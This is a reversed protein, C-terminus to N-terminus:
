LWCPLVPDPSITAHSFPIFTRIGPDLGLTAKAGAPAALLLDKLNRAFVQIAEEEAKDRLIGMLDLELHLALKVKWAFRAVDMLWKDAPRGCDAIGYTDAVMKVTPLVQSVDDADVTLDVSLIGENRGRFLALARHSPIKSWKESYDFYDSFKAGKEAMGDILKSQVVGREEVHRRLRGVLTANEAFREMLIQRAGDLAAKTDAVGKGDDLFNTAETEPKKMPDNLLLDALPELGAERAIQAKTRRKKKFPLYIDELQSKTDAAQIGKTLEDTLKGQEDISKTIAVRRDELERLYILREELKRLQSDDLGGTAEKRYRAIFPVTSGEDLMQVTANVQGAKCAIEDAIRHAIRLATDAALSSKASSQSPGTTTVSAM